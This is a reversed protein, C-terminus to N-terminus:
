EKGGTRAQEVTLVLGVTADVGAILATGAIREAEGKWGQDGNREAEGIVAAGDKYVMTIQIMARVGTMVRVGKKERGEIL